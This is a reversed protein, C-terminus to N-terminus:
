QLRSRIWECWGGIDEMMELVRGLDQPNIQRGKGKGATADEDLGGMDEDLINQSVVHVHGNPRIELMINATREKFPFVVQLRPVPHATLTIDINWAPQSEGDDKLSSGAVEGASLFKTFDDKTTTITDDVKAAPAVASSAEEKSAFSCELLTYLFAYQRLTPLMAVLQRPHSFPVETLTKGYVPKYVFLSNNHLRELPSGDRSLCTTRKTSKVVRPESPDYHSGQPIPFMLSDFTVLPFENPPPAGTLHYVQEWINLPVIVPPDFTAMFIVEPFKPAVELLDQSDGPKSEDTSSLITNEPEQWDLITGTGTTLIEEDTPHLKEVEASIWRDSVRVPPYVLGASPACGILIGWTKSASDVFRRSLDSQPRLLRNGRWYDISLGVRDRAHMVPTGNRTCMAAVELFEDDRHSTASEERLKEMDWKHLRELSEYIGSVAEHTNLGPIVSLKDMVALRELNAAFKDLQKTLPSEYPLLKLDDLIIQEAKAVHKTVMDASEPFSLSVRQVINNSLVIDLALASGAIILTRSKPERRMGSDDWLYELGTAKALRELGAESVIGKKHKLIDIVGQLRKAREEDDGRVGLAGLGGIGGVGVNDLGGDLSGIGLAGFAAAASPSDFNVASNAQHGMLTTSTAPSKKVQQPSSRPGHPSFAAHAFPTSAAPTAVAGHQQSQSPTWGQQSPGHKMATPTAM